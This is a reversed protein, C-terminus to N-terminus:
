PVSVVIPPSPGKGAGSTPSRRHRPHRRSSPQPTARGAEDDRALAGEGRDCDRRSEEDRRRAWDTQLKKTKLFTARQLAVNGM